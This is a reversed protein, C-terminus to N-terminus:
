IDDLCIYIVKNTPSIFVFLTKFYCANEDRQAKFTVDSTFFGKSVIYDRKNRRRSAEEEPATITLLFSYGKLYLWGTHIASNYVRKSTYRHTHSFHESFQIIIMTTGIQMLAIRKAPRYRHNSPPLSKVLVM